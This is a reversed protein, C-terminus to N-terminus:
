PKRGVANLYLVREEKGDIGILRGMEKEDFSGVPVAGLGLSTAQLLLNQSAHGVEILVFERGKEGYKGVARNEVAAFAFVAAAEGVHEQLFSAAYLEEKFDGERVLELSHSKPAYHYIGQRLGEVRNAFVYVELPYLGGASPATRLGMPDSIGQAAFLLQSIEVLSLAEESYHRASRREKIAKELAMGQFDPAPLRVKEAAPYEKYKIHPYHAPRELFLIAVLIFLLAVLAAALLRLDM